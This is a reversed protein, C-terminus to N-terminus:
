SGPRRVKFRHAAQGSRRTLSTLRDNTLYTEARLRQETIDSTIGMLRTPRSFEDRIVFGRNHIWRVSGDPRIIRYFTEVSEGSFEHGLVIVAKERDEPHVADLWSNPDDYLSECTLNWLSEYARSVYLVQGTKVDLVWLVEPLTEALQKLRRDHELQHQPRGSNTSVEVSIRELADALERIKQDKKEELLYLMELLNESVKRQQAVSASGLLTLAAVVAIWDALIFLADPNRAFPGYGNLSGWTAFGSLILTAGAAELPCFRLTAWVLFPACLFVLNSDKSWGFVLPGFNLICVSSLGILLAAVELSERFDLAPHSGELLLVLFPAIVLASLANGLWWPLWVSSFETWTASGSTCIFGAGVTASVSTAILGALIIFRFVGSPNSFAQVGNAFKKVLFSGILGELTDGAAIGIAVTLSDGVTLNVFLSGLFIAPWIRYGRLLFAALMLGTPIWLPAARPNLHSVALSAKASIVYALFLFILLGLFRFSALASLENLFKRAPLPRARSASRFGHDM